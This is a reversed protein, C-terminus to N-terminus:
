LRSPANVVVKKKIVVKSIVPKVASKKPLRKPKAIEKGWQIVIDKAVLRCTLDWFGGVSYHSLSGNLTLKFFTAKDGSKKPSRKIKVVVKNEKSDPKSQYEILGRINVYGDADHPNLDVQKDWIGMIQLQTKEATRRPYFVFLQEQTLDHHKAVKIVKGLMVADLITDGVTLIGKQPEEKSPFWLGRVLGIARFQLGEAPPIFNAIYDDFKPM